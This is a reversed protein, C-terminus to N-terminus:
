AIMAEERVPLDNSAAADIWGLVNLRRIALAVESEDLGCLGLCDELSIMAPIEVLM